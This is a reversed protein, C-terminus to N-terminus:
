VIPTRLSPSSGHAKSRLPEDDEPDDHQQEARLLEGLQRAREAAGGALELLADLFTRAVRVLGAGGGGLRVGGRLSSGLVGGQLRGEAARKAPPRSRGRCPRTPPVNGRLCPPRGAHEHRPIFLATCSWISGRVGGVTGPRSKSPKKASCRM